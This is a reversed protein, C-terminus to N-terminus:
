EIKNTSSPFGPLKQSEIPNGLYEKIKEITEIMILGKQNIQWLM